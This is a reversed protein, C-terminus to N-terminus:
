TPQGLLLNGMNEGWCRVTRISHFNPFYESQSQPLVSNKTPREARVFPSLLIVFMSSDMTHTDAHTGRATIRNKIDFFVLTTSIWLCSVLTYALSMMLMCITLFHHQSNQSPYCLSCSSDRMPWRFTTLSLDTLVIQVSSVSSGNNLMICAPFLLSRHNPSGSECIDIERITFSFNPNQLTRAFHTGWWNDGSCSVFRM